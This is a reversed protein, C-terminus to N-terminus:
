VKQYILGVTYSAYAVITNNMLSFILSLQRQLCSDLDYSEFHNQRAAVWTQTNM